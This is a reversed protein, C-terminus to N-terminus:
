FWRGRGYSWVIFALLILLIILNVDMKAEMRGPLIARVAGGL